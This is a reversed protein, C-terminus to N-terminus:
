VQLSSSLAMELNLRKEFRWVRGEPDTLEVYHSTKESLIFRSSDHRYYFFSLKAVLDFYKESSLEFVLVSGPSRLAESDKRIELYQHALPLRMQSDSIEEVDLELVETLFSLYEEFCQTYFVFGGFKM